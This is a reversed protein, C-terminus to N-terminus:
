SKTAWGPCGAVQWGHPFDRCQRPRASYIRCRGDPELFECAGDAAERLTLQARNRALIAHRDIFVEPTLGLFAAAQDIDASDL